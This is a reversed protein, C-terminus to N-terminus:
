RKRSSNVDVTLPALSWMRACEESMCNM